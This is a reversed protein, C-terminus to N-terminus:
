VGLLGSFKPDKRVDTGYTTFCNSCVKRVEDLEIACNHCVKRGCLVCRSTALATRCVDCLAEVCASCAERRESYHDECVYRGCKPCVFKAPKENCIDCNKAYLSLIMKIDRYSYPSSRLLEESFHHKTSRRPGQL